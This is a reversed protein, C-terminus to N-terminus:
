KKQSLQIIWCPNFFIPRSGEPSFARSLPLLLFVVMSSYNSPFLWFCFLLFVSLRVSSRVFPRVFMDLESPRSCSFLCLCSHWGRRLVVSCGPLARSPYCDNALACFSFLRRGGQGHPQCARTNQDSRRRRAERINNQATGWAKSGKNRRLSVQQLLVLTSKCAHFLRHCGKGLAEHYQDPRRRRPGPVKLKSHLGLSYTPLPLFPPLVPVCVCLCTSPIRM